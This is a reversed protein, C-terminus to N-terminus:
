EVLSFNIRKKDLDIREVQIQISQNLEFSQDDNKLTMRDADFKFAKPDLKVFGNIGWNKIQATIGQSTVRFVRAEFEQKQHQQM